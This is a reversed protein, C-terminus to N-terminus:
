YTNAIAKYTLPSVLQLKTQSDSQTSISVHVFTFTIEHVYSSVPCLADEEACLQSILTHTVLHWPVFDYLDILHHKYYRLM